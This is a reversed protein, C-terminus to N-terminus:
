CSGYRHAGAGACALSFLVLVRTCSGLRHGGGTVLCLDLREDHAGVPRVSSMNWGLRIQEPAAM